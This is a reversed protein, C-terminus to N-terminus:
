LLEGGWYGAASMLITTIVALILYIGFSARSAKERVILRWVALAVILGFSPWVFEHHLLLKGTGMLQWQTLMVGSLVAGFSGLAGLILAYYSAIHLEIRTKENKLFYGILDFLLSAILLGIPFHTTGGHVVVWFKHSNM